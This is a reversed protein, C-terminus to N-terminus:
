KAEKDWRYGIGYHASIQDFRQDIDRFKKRLRKIFSDIHRPEHDDSDVAAALDDRSRIVGPRSVLAQLILFEYRSLEIRRGRWLCYYGDIHLTLSGLALVRKPGISSSTIQRPYLVARVRHILATLSYPKIIYDAAGKRLALEEVLEEGNATLFVVPIKIGRLLLHDFLDMGNMGPMGYDIIALSAPERELSELADKTRLFTRVKFGEAELGIRISELINSEDDIVAIEDSKKKM